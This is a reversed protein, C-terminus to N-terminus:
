LSTMRAESAIATEDRKMRASVACRVIYESIVGLHRRRGHSDGDNAIGVQLEGGGVDEGARSEIPSSRPALRWHETNFLKNVHNRIYRCTSGGM